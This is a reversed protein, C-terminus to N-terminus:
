RTNDRLFGDVVAAVRVPDDLHVHHGGEIEVLKLGQIAAAQRRALAEDFPYGRTAKVVLCPCAIRALFAQIQAETMRFLSPCRMRPDSRWTIGGPVTKTGREVLIRAGEPSLGWTVALWRSVATDLDPYVPPQKGHARRLEVIGKALREPAEEPEASLPGLGELLVLREVRAPFTAAFLTAIAAGMSHALISFRDWGLAEAIAHVIPLWDVMHYAEGPARHDSRGHGPLDVAVLRLRPLLPALRDFTAANDLWGHLGLTRVGDEPGWAKAAVRFGPIGLEIEVADPPTPEHTM